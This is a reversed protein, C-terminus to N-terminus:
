QSSHEHRACALIGKKKEFLAEKYQEHRIEKEVVNINNQNEELISYMKPEIAAAEDITRGAYEDKIEGLVKKNEGSYLPYDKPYNSTDYLLPLSM